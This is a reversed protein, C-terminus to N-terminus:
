ITVRSLKEQMSTVSTNLSKAPGLGDILGTCLRVRRWTPEMVRGHARVNLEPRAKAVLTTSGLGNYSVEAGASGATARFRSSCLWM